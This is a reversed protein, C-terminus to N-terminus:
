NCTTIRQGYANYTTWCNANAAGVAVATGVAVGVGVGVVAAGCVPAHVATRRAVGAYSMPTLPYGIIAESMTTMGSTALFALLVVRLKSSKM